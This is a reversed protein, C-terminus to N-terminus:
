VRGRGGRIIVNEEGVLHFGHDTDDSTIRIEVTTGVPITIRSPTFAFREAVMEVVQDNQALPHGAAVFLVVLGCATVRSVSGTLWMKLVVM